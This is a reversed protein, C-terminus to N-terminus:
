KGNEEKYVIEKGIYEIREMLNVFGGMELHGKAYVEYENQQYDAWTVPMKMLGVYKFFQQQRPSAVAKVTLVMPEGLEEFMHNLLREEAERNKRESFDKLLFIVKADFEEWRDKGSLHMSAAYGMYYGDPQIIWFLPVDVGQEKCFMKLRDQLDNMDFLNEIDKPCDPMIKLRRM